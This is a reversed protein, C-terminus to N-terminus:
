NHKLWAQPVGGLFHVRRNRRKAEKIGDRDWSEDSSKSRDQSRYGSGYHRGDGVRVATEEKRQVKM